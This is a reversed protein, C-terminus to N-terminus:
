GWAPRDVTWLGFLWRGEAWRKSVIWCVRDAWGIASDTVAVADGPRLGAWTPPASYTTTTPPSARFALYSLGIQYLSRQDDCWPLYIAQRTPETATLRQISAAVRAGISTPIRTDTAGSVAAPDFQAVSAAMGSVMNTGGTLTLSLPAKAEDQTLPALRAWGEATVDIQAACDAPAADHDLHGFILGDPGQRITLPLYPLVQSSVYDWAGIGADNLYGNFGIGRIRELAPASAAVDVALGARALLYLLAEGVGARGRGRSVAAVGSASTWYIAYTQNNRAISTSGSVDCYFYPLGSPTMAQEVPFTLGGTVGDYVEVSLSSGTPTDIVADYGCILVKNALSGYFDIVYGPTAYTATTGTAGPQGIVLPMPVNRADEALEPFDSTTMVARSDLLKAGTSWPTAEVSASFWDDPRDPDSTVPQALIGEAVTEVDETTLTHQAGSPLYPALVYALTARAERLDISLARLAAASIGMYGEVAVQQSAPQVQLLDIQEAYDIESLGGDFPVPDDTDADYITIPQTSLRLTRGPLTLTLLWIMDADSRILAPM